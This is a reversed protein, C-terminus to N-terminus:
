EPRRLSDFMDDISDGSPHADHRSDKWAEYDREGRQSMAEEHEETAEQVAHRPGDLDVELRHSFLDLADKLGSYDSETQCEHLETVFYRDRYVLVAEHLLNVLEQPLEVDDVARILRELDVSGCGTSADHILLRVMRDKIAELDDGFVAESAAVAEMLSVGEDLNIAKSEWQSLTTQVESVVRATISKDQLADAVDILTALRLEDSDDFYAIGSQFERRNPAEMLSLFAAGTRAPDRGLYAMVAGGLRSRGFDWIRRAQEFRVSGEIIDIANAPDQQVLTNLVDTVSPDLVEIESGSRVFSGNLERVAHRWDSPDTRFGYRAGRLGHLKEFAVQLLVSGRKSGYSYLALLVSRAADSIQKEYAHRWIEAPNELLGRIFNQYGKLPTDRIRQYTSLWEILRPNFKKHDVVTNYFKGALLEERYDDPLDSFYLHNYLISARQQRSYGEDYQTKLQSANRLLHAFRQKAPTAKTLAVVASALIAGCQERHIDKPLSVLLAQGVALDVAALDDVTYEVPVEFKGSDIFM